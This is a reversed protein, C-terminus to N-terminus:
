VEWRVTRHPFNNCEFCFLSSMRKNYEFSDQASETLGFFHLLYTQSSGHIWHRRQPDHLSRETKDTMRGFLGRSHVIGASEVSSQFFVCLLDFTALVALTAMMAWFNLKLKGSPVCCWCVFIFCIWVVCFLFLMKLYTSSLYLYISPTSISSLCVIYIARSQGLKHFSWMIKFYKYHQNGQWWFIVNFAILYSIFFVRVKVWVNTQPKTQSEAESPVPNSVTVSLYAKLFCPWWPSCFTM